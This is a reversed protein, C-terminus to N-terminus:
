SLEHVMDCYLRVRDAPTGPTVPSGLSMVFRNKNLRGASLQRKIELRLSEESGDQLIGIADLNGLLAVRGQVINAAEEINVDWGKKGEELSLADAGSDLLLNWKGKPSGTFYYIGKMGVSHIEEVLRRVVPLNIRKFDDPSIQDTLCEELWMCEVGLASAKRVSEIAHELYRQCAYKVLEPKTAIIEMLGEFGWLGYCSWLPTNVRSVTYLDRAFGTTIADALEDSKYESRAAPKIRSDIEEFTDAMNEPHVSEAVFTERGSVKPPSLKKENGTLTDTLYIDGDRQEIRMNDRHYKSPLGILDIWDQGLASAIESRWQIQKEISPESAYWWPCSTLESWKDRIYIKEYPIVAAFKSVGDKSLAARIKEKGTM